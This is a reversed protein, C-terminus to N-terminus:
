SCLLAKKKERRKFFFYSWGFFRGTFSHVTIRIGKGTSAKQGREGRGEIINNKAV